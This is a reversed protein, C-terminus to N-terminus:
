PATDGRNTVTDEIWAPDRRVSLVALVETRRGDTRYVAMIPFRRLLVRRYGDFYPAGAEPFVALLELQEGLRALFKGPLAPDRQVYYAAISDLDAEVGPHLVLERETM